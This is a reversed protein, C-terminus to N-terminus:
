RGRDRQVARALRRFEVRVSKDLKAAFEGTLNRERILDIVDALDRARLMNDLGSRLKMSLLDALSVTIVDDIVVRRGLGVKVHALTVLHVPVGDRSFERRRADFDFGAQALAAAFAEADGTFVDVDLTTRVHGHLVVAIGGIIAADLDAARIIRTIERAVELIVGGGHLTMLAEERTIM